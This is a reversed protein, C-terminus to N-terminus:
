AGAVPASAARLKVAADWIMGQILVEARALTHERRRARDLSAGSTTRFLELNRYARESGPEAADKRLEDKWVLTIWFVLDRGPNAALVDAITQRFGQSKGNVTLSISPGSSTGLDDFNTWRLSIGLLQQVADLCNEVTLEPAFPIELDLPSRNNKVRLLLRRGTISSSYKQVYEDFYRAKRFAEIVQAETVTLRFDFRHKVRDFHKTCLADWHEPGLFDLQTAALGLEAATELISRVAHGTYNANTAFAYRQWGISGQAKVAAQLSDISAGASLSGFAGREDSKCQFATGSPRHLVDVGLDPAILRQLGTTGHEASLLDFCLAEWADGFKTDPPLIKMFESSFTHQVSHEARSACDDSSRKALLRRRPLM